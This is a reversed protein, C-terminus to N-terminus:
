VAVYHMANGREIKAALISRALTGPGAGCEVVDFRSPSGMEKWRADFVRAIVKGFLPGVEPSSIFDGGRRCARGGTTYFGGEGNL